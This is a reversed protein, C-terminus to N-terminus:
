EDIVEDFEQSDLYEDFYDYALEYEDDDIIRSLKPEENPDNPNESYEYLWYNGFLEDDEDVIPLVAIYEKGNLEFITIVECEVVTGEDDIVIDVTMEEEPTENLNGM